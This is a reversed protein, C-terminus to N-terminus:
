FGLCLGARINVAAFHSATYRAGAFLGFQGFMARIGAGAIYAIGTKSAHKLTVTNGKSSVFVKEEGSIMSVGAGAEAFFQFMKSGVNIGGVLYGSFEPYGDVSVTDGDSPDTLVVKGGANYIIEPGICFLRSNYRYGIGLGSTKYASMKSFDHAWQEYTREAAAISNYQGFVYVMNTIEQAALLHIFLFFLVFFVAIQFRKHGSYDSLNIKRKRM